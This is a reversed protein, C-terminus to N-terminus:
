CDSLMSSQSFYGSSAQSPLTSENAEIISQSANFTLSPRASLHQRKAPTSTQVAKRKLSSKKEEELTFQQGMEDFKEKHLVKSRLTINIRKIDIPEQM